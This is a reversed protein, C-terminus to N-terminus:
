VEVTLDYEITPMLTAMFKLFLFLYRDVELRRGEPGQAPPLFCISVLFLRITLVCVDVCDRIEPFRFFSSVCGVVLVGCRKYSAEALRDTLRKMVNAHECPHIHAHMVQTHPHREATVTQNAHTSSIDQM